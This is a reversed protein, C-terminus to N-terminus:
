HLRPHDGHTLDKKGSGREASLPGPASCTAARPDGPERRIYSVWKCVCATERRWSDVCARLAFLKQQIECEIFKDFSLKEKRSRSVLFPFLLVFVGSFM